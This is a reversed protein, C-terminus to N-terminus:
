DGPKRKVVAGYLVLDVVREVFAQSAAGQEIFVRHIISGALTFLLQTIDASEALEGRQIARLIAALPVHKGADQYANTALARLEPNAGEALLVRVVGMGAPSQVFDAVTKALAILDGRLTGTDPASQTHAMAQALADRVLESKTPWRRYLSTKNVGSRKAVDPVTLREFGVEALLQLTADLVPGVFAEGRPQTTKKRIKRPKTTM